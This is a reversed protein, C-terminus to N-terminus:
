RHQHARNEPFSGARVMVLSLKPARVASLTPPQLYV